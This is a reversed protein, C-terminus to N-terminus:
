FSQSLPTLSIPFAKAVADHTRSAIQLIITVWVRDYLHSGLCRCGTIGLMLLISVGVISLWLIGFFTTIVKSHNYVAKVRFFFLLSTAPGGIEFTVGQIYKLAECNDIQAVVM